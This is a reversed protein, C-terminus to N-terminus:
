CVALDEGLEREVMRVRKLYLGHLKRRILRRYKALRRIIGNSKARM